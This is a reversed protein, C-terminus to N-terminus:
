LYKKRIDSAKRKNGHKELATAIDEWCLCEDNDHCAHLVEILKERESQNERDIIDRKM